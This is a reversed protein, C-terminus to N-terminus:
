ADKVVLKAIQGSLTSIKKEGSIRAIEIQMEYYACMAMSVFRDTPPIQAWQVGKAWSVGSKKLIEAMSKKLDPSFESYWNNMNQKNISQGPRHAFQNRLTGAYLLAGKMDPRLGCALSLLVKQSYDLSAGNLHSVDSLAISLFEGVLSEIFIHARIVKGIDDESQLAALFTPNEDKM